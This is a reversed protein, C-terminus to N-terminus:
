QMNSVVINVRYWGDRKQKDEAAKSQDLYAQALEIRASENTPHNKLITHLKEFENKKENEIYYRLEPDSRM